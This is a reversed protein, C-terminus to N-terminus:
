AGQQRRRMAATREIANDGATFRETDRNMRCGFDIKEPMACRDSKNRHFFRSRRGNRFAAVIPFAFQGGNKSLFAVIIRL